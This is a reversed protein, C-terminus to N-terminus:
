VHARGIQLFSHVVGTKANRLPQWRYKNKVDDPTNVPKYATFDAFHGTALTGHPNSEDGARAEIILRAALNGIGSPQTIDLSTDDADYGLECMLDLFMNKQEAPLDLWFLAQLVRFAAFSFAKRRNDKTAESDPRRLLGGTTTSLECPRYSTWADYMATHLMALARAARPPPTSTAKIAELALANWQTALTPM